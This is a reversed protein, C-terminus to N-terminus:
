NRTRGPSESALHEEDDQLAARLHRLGNFVRSKITGLPVKLRKAIQSQSLGGYYALELAQREGEPLTRLAEQVRGRDTRLAAAEAASVGVTEPVMDPRQEGRREERKVLDVARRHVIMLLWGRVSGRGADFSSASRWVSLFADQVVDEAFGPDRVIWLALRYAVAGFRDYLEGLAGEDGAALLSLIAGDGPRPPAQELGGGSDTAGAAALEELQTRRPKGARPTTM